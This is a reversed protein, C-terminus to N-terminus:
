YVAFCVCIDLLLSASCEAGNFHREFRAKGKKQYGMAQLRRKEGQLCASLFITRIVGTSYGFDSRHDVLAAAKIVRTRHHRICCTKRITGAYFHMPPKPKPPQWVNPRDRDRRPPRQQSRAHPADGNQNRTRQQQQPQETQKMSLSIKNDQMGIVKVQVEQGEQVFEHIDHVFRNSIESIHVMGTVTEQAAADPQIAIFAGYNTIRKVKGQYTSGIELQM